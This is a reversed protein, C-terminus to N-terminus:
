RCSGCGARSSCAMTSQAVVVAGGGVVTGNVSGTEVPEVGALGGGDSCRVPRGVFTAVTTPGAPEPLVRMSRVAASAQRCRRCRRRRVRVSRGRRRVFEGVAGADSASVM